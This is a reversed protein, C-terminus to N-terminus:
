QLDRAFISLKLAFSQPVIVILNLELNIQINVQSSIIFKDTM